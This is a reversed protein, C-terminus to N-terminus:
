ISGHGHFGHAIARAHLSKAKSRRAHNGVRVCETAELNPRWGSSCSLVVCAGNDCGVGVAGAIQTCDRGEGLSACGGCSDLQSATDLCEFGGSGFDAAGSFHQRVATDFMASGIIPCATEGSPCLTHVEAPEARKARARQSPTTKCSNDSLYYGDPCSTYVCGSDRCEGTAGLPTFECKNGWAGCHQPDCTLDIKKCTSSVLEYGDECATAKCSGDDCTTASAGEISCENGCRGCNNTDYRVDRCFLGLIDWDFGNECSGTCQGDECRPNFGNALTKPCVNGLSGCNDPDSSTNIEVCM